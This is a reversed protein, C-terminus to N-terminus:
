HETMRRMYHVCGSDSLSTALWSANTRNRAATHVEAAFTQLAGILLAVEGLTERLEALRQMPQKDGLFSRLNLWRVM